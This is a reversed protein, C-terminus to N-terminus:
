VDRGVNSGSTPEIHQRQSAVMLLSLGVISAIVSGYLVGVRVATLHEPTSFALSGIFLSMTFGIGALFGVGAVHIWNCNEPLAALRLKVALWCISLVGLPKGVVLGAAIGFPLPELARAPALDAIPLGANAFAFLPLIMFKVYPLLSHEIVNLFPTGDKRRLPISLGIIVGALTAHVGSELVCLWLAGGVVAYLGTKSYHMVNLALLMASALAALTLAMVSIQATYFVAIIIIAGLDDLTALTLLFVKLSAPVRRGLLSLAGLAFAIDTAAPIAWGRLLLPDGGNVLLYVLAPAGMGGVAALAPLIIQSRSSLTGELIERKLELGVLLFFVAMLGDNIWLLLPKSLEADALGIRLPAQLADRYYPTIPGFNATAIALVATVALILGPATDSHLFAQLRETLTQQTRDKGQLM